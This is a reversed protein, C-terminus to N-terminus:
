SGTAAAGSRPPPCPCRGRLKRLRGVVVPDTIKEGTFLQFPRWVNTASPLGAFPSSITLVARVLEPHRHAVIRSM